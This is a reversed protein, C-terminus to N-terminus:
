EVDFELLEVDIGLKNLGQLYAYQGGPVNGAAPFNGHQLLTLHLWFNQVQSSMLEHLMEQRSGFHYNLIGVAVEARATINAM